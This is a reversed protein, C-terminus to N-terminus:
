LGPWTCQCTIPRVALHIVLRLGAQYLEIIIRLVHRSPWARRYRKNPLSYTRTRKKSRCQDLHSFVNNMAIDRTFSLVDIWRYRRQHQFLKLLKWTTLDSYSAKTAHVIYTTLTPKRPLFFFTLIASGPLDLLLLSGHLTSAIKCLGVVVM